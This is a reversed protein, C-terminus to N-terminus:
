DIICFVQFDMARPSFSTFVILMKDASFSHILFFLLCVSTRCCLSDNRTKRSEHTSLCKIPHINKYDWYIGRHSFAVRENSSVPAPRLLSQPLPVLSVCRDTHPTSALTSAPVPLGLVSFTSAPPDRHSVPDATLGLQQARPQPSAMDGLLHNANRLIVVWPQCGYMCVHVCMCIHACLKLCVNVSSYLM